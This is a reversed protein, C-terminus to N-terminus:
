WVYRISFGGDWFYFPLYGLSNWEISPKIDFSFTIPIEAVKYEIGVIGDVGVGVVTSKKCPQFPDREWQFGNWRYDDCGGPFSYFGAHGGYGYYWYLNDLQFSGKYIEYLGTLKFSRFGFGVIGELATEQGIFHKVTIGNTFGGRLGVGTNYDQTQASM